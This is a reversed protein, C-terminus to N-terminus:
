LTNSSLYNTIATIYPSNPYGYGPSTPGGGETTVIATTTGTQVIATTTGTQLIATPM